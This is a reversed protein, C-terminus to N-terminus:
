KITIAIFYPLWLWSGCCIGCGHMALAMALAKTFAM